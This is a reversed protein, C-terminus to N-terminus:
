ATSVKIKSWDQQKIWDEVTGLDLAVGLDEPQVVSKDVTGADYGFEAVYALFDSIDARAEEPFRKAADENDSLRTKVGLVESFTQVYEEMSMWRRVGILNKGPPSQLLAHVFPGTDEGAVVTPIPAKPIFPHFVVTGDADQMVINTIQTM